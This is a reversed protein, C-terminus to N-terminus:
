FRKMYYEVIWVDLAKAILLNVVIFDIKIFQHTQKQERVKTLVFFSGSDMTTSRSLFTEEVVKQNKANYPRCM